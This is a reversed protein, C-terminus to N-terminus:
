MCQLYALSQGAMRHSAHVRGTSMTVQSLHIVLLLFILLLLLLLVVIEVIVGNM